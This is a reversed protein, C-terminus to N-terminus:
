TSEFYYSIALTYDGTENYINAMNNYTMAINVHDPILAMSCVDLASQYMKLALIYDEKEKYIVGINNYSSALSPHNPTLTKLEIDLKKKYMELAKESDNISRFTSGLNGYAGALSPHYSPLSNLTELSKRHNATANEYDGLQHYIVAINSYCIGLSLNDDIEEKVDLTKKYYILAQDFQGLYGYVTAINDYVTSLICKDLKPYPSFIELAKEYQELATEYDCKEQYLLGLQNYITARQLFNSPSTERLLRIYYSEAKKFDGMQILFSGLTLLDTTEDIRKKLYDYVEKLQEDEEHCMILKVHWINTNALKEVCEIRFISGIFLLIECEDQVYSLDKINAFPKTKNM